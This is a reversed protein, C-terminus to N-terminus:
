YVLQRQPLFLVTSSLVFSFKLNVSPLNSIPLVFVIIFNYQLDILLFQSCYTDILPSLINVKAIVKRITLSLFQRSRKWLSLWDLSRCLRTFSYLRYVRVLSIALGHFNTDVAVRRSSTTALLTYGKTTVSAILIVHRTDPFYFVHVWVRRHMKNVNRGPTWCAQSQHDCTECSRRSKTNFYKLNNVVM